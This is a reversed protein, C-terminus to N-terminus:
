QGTLFVGEKEGLTFLPLSEYFLNFLLMVSAHAMHPRQAATVQLNAHECRRSIRRGLSLITRACKIKYASCYGFNYQIIM